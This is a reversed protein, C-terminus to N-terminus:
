LLSDLHRVSARRAAVADRAHEHSARGVSAVGQEVRVAVGHVQTLHGAQVKELLHYEVNGVHGQEEVVGQEEAVLVVVQEQDDMLVM